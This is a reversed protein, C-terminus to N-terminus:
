GYKAALKLKGQPFFNYRVSGKNPFRPQEQQKKIKIMIEKRLDVVNNQLIGGKERDRM